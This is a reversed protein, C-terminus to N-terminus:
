RVVYLYFSLDVNEGTWVSTDWYAETGSHSYPVSADQGIKVSTAGAYEIAVCYYADPSTSLTIREAGIFNFTVLAVNEAGTGLTNANIVESTALASGTPKGNNITGYTGTHEYITSTMNGSAGTDRYLYWTVKDLVGGGTTFCQAYKPYSANVSNYETVNSIPYSDDLVLVAGGSGAIYANTRALVTTAVLFLLLVIFFLKKM